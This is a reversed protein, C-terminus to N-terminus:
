KAADCKPTTRLETRSATTSSMSGPLTQKRRSNEDMSGSTDCLLLVDLPQGDPLIERQWNGERAPPSLQLMLYGDDGRRHPIVVVDNQRGDIECVVEFDRTPVYEQAAFSLKASNMRGGGATAVAAAAKGDQRVDHTVCEVSKLPLTSNVTVDIALERVPFQRLLDSQLGYSYRYRNGRLPLVQTYVIKIRKESFPEIPFVRAKFINGATWELLGPDRRERLITEYIERARQKEVVDAEVLQNGIWMGFGSISADSPLPFHFVGELRQGTRNVFSEEITTRAIQDRIEVSVKHYGVTLPENRGDVNAILTGIKEGVTTGEFGTLWAPPTKFEVLQEDRSVRFLLRRTKAKQNQFKFDSIQSKDRGKPGAVGFERGFKEPLVVQVEGVHVKVQQPSVCEVLTGPGLTVQVESTLSVRVANPGRLDTRVWDGPKLLTQRCVPTWREHLVPRLTVLGQTDTIKGIRGDESLSKAVGPKEDGPKEDAAAVNMALLRADVLGDASGSLVSKSDSGFWVFCAAALLVSATVARTVARTMSVIM